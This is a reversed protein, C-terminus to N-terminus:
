ERAKREADAIYDLVDYFALEMGEQHPEGYCDEISKKLFACLPAIFLMTPKPEPM